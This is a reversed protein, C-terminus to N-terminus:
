QEKSPKFKFDDISNTNLSRNTKVQTNFKKIKDARGSGPVQTIINQTFTVEFKNETFFCCGM